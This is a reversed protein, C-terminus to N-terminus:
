CIVEARLHLISGYFSFLFFAKKPAYESDGNFVTIYHIVGIFIDVFCTCSCDIYLLGVPCHLRVIWFWVGGNYGYIFTSHLLHASSPFLHM